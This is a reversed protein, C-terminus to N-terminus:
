LFHDENIFCAECKYFIGENIFFAECNISFLDKKTCFLGKEHSIYRKEHLISRKEHLIHIKKSKWRNEDIKMSIRSFRHFDRIVFNFIHDSCSLWELWQRNDSRHSLLRGRPRTEAYCKRCSRWNGLRNWVPDNGYSNEDIKM